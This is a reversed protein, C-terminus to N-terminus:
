LRSHRGSGSTIGSTLDTRHHRLEPRNERHDQFREFPAGPDPHLGAPAAHHREDEITIDDLQLGDIVRRDPAALDEKNPVGVTTEHEVPQHTGRGTLIDKAAIRELVTVRRDM